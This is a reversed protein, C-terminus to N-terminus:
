AVKDALRRSRTIDDWVEIFREIDARTTSWGLSVRLASRALDPDVGMAELVHSRGVKGSSCASGSSIAIGALDFAILKTEAKLGRVALATTNALRPASSGLVVAAPASQLAQEELLDRLAAIRTTDSAELSAQEAAAGFGAAGAVNETGARLSKEQGGGTLLPSKLTGNSGLVIAGAGQPGGIKHSSLALYSVPLAELDIAIRGAAQVGDVHLFAGAEAVIRAVEAVPQVVGTENNAWQLSVLRDGVPNERLWAAVADLDILGNGDVGLQTFGSTRRRLPQLVSVHEVGAAAVASWRPDSLVTANAETAGSTLVIREPAVNVLAAVRSRADELVARGQRGEQHVSSPNGCLELAALVAAKAEPRLPATANFDLYTRRSSM